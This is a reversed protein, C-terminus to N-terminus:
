AYEVSTPWFGQAKKRRIQKYLEDKKIGLPLGGTEIVLDQLEYLDSELEKETKSATSLREIVKTFKAKQILQARKFEMSKAENAKFEETPETLWVPRPEAQVADGVALLAGGVVVSAKVLIDRRSADLRTTSSVSRDVPQVSFASATALLSVVVIASTARMM